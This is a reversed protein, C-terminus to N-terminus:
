ADRFEPYRRGLEFHVDGLMDQFRELALGALKQRAANRRPHMDERVPLASPVDSGYAPHAAPRRLAAKARRLLEEYCDSSLEHFQHATLRPLKRRAGARYGPESTAESYCLVCPLFSPLHSHTRLLARPCQSTHKSKTLYLVLYDSLERYHLKSSQYSDVANKLSVYGRAQSESVNMTSIITPSFRSQTAKSYLPKM